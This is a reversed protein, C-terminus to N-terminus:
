DRSMVGHPDHYRGRRIECATTKKRRRQLEKGQRRPQHIRKQYIKLHQLTKV